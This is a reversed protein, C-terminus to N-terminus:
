ACVATYHGHSGDPETWEVRVDIATGHGPQFTVSTVYDLPVTLGLSAHIEQVKALAEDRSM